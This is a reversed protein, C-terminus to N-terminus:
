KMAAEDNNRLPAPKMREESLRVTGSIKEAEVIWGGGMSKYVAVLASYVDRQTQVRSLEGAYLTREAGLVDLLNSYGGEYRKRMLTAYEKLADVQRGQIVFQESSKQNYILADDVERFATLIARLYVQVMEKQIAETQAVNGEIRGSTFLPGLLNNGFLGFNATRQGIKSLDTSSYGFNGTLSITPFYETKAVGIRANAAILDQEAKRVDPRRELVQSPIGQPVAPVVLSELTSGRRIPGPGSGILLSLANEQQTIDREKGPILSAAQEYAARVQALQLQSASGGEVKATFIALSEMSSALSRRLIQLESDLFLLQIYGTAVDSVLTMLLARQAEEASLLEALAAENSRRIRGWIDLEWSLSASVEFSNNYILTDPPLPVPREQSLRQRSIPSGFAL